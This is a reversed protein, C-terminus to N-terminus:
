TLKKDGGRWTLRCEPCAPRSSGCRESSKCARNFRKQAATLRSAYVSRAGPLSAFMEYDEHAACLGEIEREIERIAEISAKMQSCLTRSLSYCAPEDGRGEHEKRPEFEVSDSGCFSGRGGIVAQV